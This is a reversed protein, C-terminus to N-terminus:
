ENNIKRYIIILTIELIVIGIIIALESMFSVGSINQDFSVM